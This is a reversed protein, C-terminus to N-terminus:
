RDEEQKLESIREDQEGLEKMYEDVNQQLSEIKDAAQQMLRHVAPYQDAAVIRFQRLQRILKRSDM